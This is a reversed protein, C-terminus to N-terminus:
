EEEGVPARTSYYVAEPHHVVMAATSQEPVIQHAETLDVEIAARAGLLEFVPVHQSLDPCAPYGWSYRRGQEAGIGLERRVRQHTWEALAEATQVSLGHVFYAETYEGRAQLDGSQKEPGPGVTVTQLAVVDIRGSEVDAFYDSLCLRDWVPQRPFTLRAVQRRDIPHAPDYVVLDDGDSQCPFYGYVAWPRLCGGELEAAQMRALRPGFDTAILQDWDEGRVGKAGWQLRYLTKLDICSFVEALPVDKLVRAGWFPPQPMPATRSVNSRVRPASTSPRETATSAGRAAAALAEARRRTVLEVRRDADSLADMVALGEFADRCYYVGSEYPSGDELLATRWGFHRNIAAGGILVPINLGRAALERVCLPMQRSTSVLLASLGIADAGVQVAREIIQNVPVQKGLDYTTYGNNSLITNVLSKGIDHVDGFVTALVIKGRTYGERRDLFQELHAVARKMVEASQLVFPLILQGAGFRDGVDKMAPLLVDNLVSVPTLTRLAEDLLAEIGEKRRHLIQNHIRQEVPLDVDVPEAPGSDVSGKRGAFHAIFAALADPVRNFILDECIKRDAEPLDAFPTIEAPHVLAVDLGAQVAHYLMVSNLAARAHPEVGFSVNSVGLSTLVGPLERKIARIGEITQIASDALTPDGTALTFTLTDFILQDPTLGFECTAIDHIRRAVALKHEATRAMGTEDITLAIVAAGHDRVLPLVADLRARGNEMNVSNVISRGPAQELGAAIVDPETSDIVLPAEVSASVLKVVGRMMTAEDARETLAVCLDLAHAGGEVQDRALAVIGDYDDRLLLRKARRSGQSNVREGVILPPPEQRLPTSRVSSSLMPERAAARLRQRRGGVAQVVLRLHEPTTGCCGGVANVGLRTVFDSLSAAMPEPELPYVARGGANLPIGANPIVSVPLDSRETLYGVPDRMHEPGTSCNLGIVDIPLAELTALVAGIDTGLLMRGNTDLTVQAQIPLRAGSERFYRVIGAITAKVELIDQSTEILLLDCGGEVLARAQEEYLAALEAFTVNGLTPDTSSPLMGSPGISGAVFRPRSPTAYRDAVRRTLRAAALNIEHTRAELGYEGLKLRSGGFTDTELVDCGVDLFRAHIGEVVDPRTVVLYENCGDKGGFDTATLDLAQISTGMAGDFVLVRETLAELYTSHLTPLDPRAPRTV